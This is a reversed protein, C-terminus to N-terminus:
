DLGQRAREDLGLERPVYDLDGLARRALPEAPRERRQLLHHLDRRPDSPEIQGGVKPDVRPDDLREVRRVGEGDAGTELRQLVRAEHVTRGGRRVPAARGRQLPPRPQLM